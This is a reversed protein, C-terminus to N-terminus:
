NRTLQIAMLFSPSRAGRNLGTPKVERRNTSLPRSYRGFRGNNEHEDSEPRRYMILHVSLNLRKHNFYESPVPCEGNWVAPIMIDRAAQPGFRQWM